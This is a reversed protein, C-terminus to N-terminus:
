NNENSCGKKSILSSLKKNIALTLLLLNNEILKYEKILDMEILEKKLTIYENSYPNNKVTNFKDIKEKIVKNKYIKEKLELLKKIEKSNEFIKILEDIKDILEIDM